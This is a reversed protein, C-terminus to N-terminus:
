NGKRLNVTKGCGGIRTDCSYFDNWVKGNKGVRQDTNRVLKMPRGDVPCPISDSVDRRAGFTDEAAKEMESTQGATTKAPAPYATSGVGTRKEDQWRPTAGITKLAGLLSTRGAVLAEASVAHVQMHAGFGDPETYFVDYSYSDSGGGVPAETTETPLTKTRPM